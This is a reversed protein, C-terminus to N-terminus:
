QSQELALSDVAEPMLGELFRRMANATAEPAEEMPIHGVGDLIVVDANPLREDFTQAATAHILRDQAGWIVLTPQVVENLRDAFEPERNAEARLATARRNGPFRLLEWYRDVM